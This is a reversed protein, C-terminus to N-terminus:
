KKVGKGTKYIEIEIWIRMPEEYNGIRDICRMTENHREEIYKKLLRANKVKREGIERYLYEIKKIM